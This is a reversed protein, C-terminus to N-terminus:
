RAASRGLLRKVLSADGPGTSSRTTPLRVTFRAGRDPHGTAAITGHHSTVVERLLALGLGFRRDGAGKGRHFRDFIREADAQDFGEGTDAIM